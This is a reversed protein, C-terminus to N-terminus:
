RTCKKKNVIKSFKNKHNKKDMVINIRNVLARIYPLKIVFSRHSEFKRKRKLLNKSM